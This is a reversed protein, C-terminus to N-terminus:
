SSCMRWGNANSLPARISRPSGTMSGVCWIREGARLEMRGDPYEWVEIVRHILARNEDTDELRYMVRDYQVTLTKTVRWTLVRELSGWDSM